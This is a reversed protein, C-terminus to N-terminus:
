STLFVYRGSKPVKACFILTGASAAPHNAARVARNNQQVTVNLDTDGVAVFKSCVVRSTERTVQKLNWRHSNMDAIRQHKISTGLYHWFVFSKCCETKIKLFYYGYSNLNEKVNLKFTIIWAKGTSPSKLWITRYVAVFKKSCIWKIWKKKSPFVIYHCICAFCVLGFSRILLPSTLFFRFFFCVCFVYGLDNDFRTTIHVLRTRSRWTYLPPSWLSVSIRCLSLSPESTTMTATRM